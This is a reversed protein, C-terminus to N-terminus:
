DWPLQHALLGPNWERPCSATYRQVTDQTLPSPPPKLPVQIGGKELGLLM